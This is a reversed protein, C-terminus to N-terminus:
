GQREHENGSLVVFTVFLVFLVFPLRSPLDTATYRSTVMITPHPRACGEVPETEGEHEEHGEHNKEKWVTGGPTEYVGHSKMGVYRNEVLDVRGIGNAGAVENLRALLAAPSLREGDIAVPNGGEFTLTLETVADPAEQPSVTREFMTAEPAAWPDELIGGEFSIHLLNGDSSWPKKPTVPIPIGHKKAYAILAERSGLEWERWPAVIQIQPALAYAALEFRVQDNGKFFDHERRHCTAGGRRDACCVARV